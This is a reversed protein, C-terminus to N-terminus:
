GEREAEELQLAPQLPTRDTGLLLQHQQVSLVAGWGSSGHVPEVHSAPDGSVEVQGARTSDEGLSAEGLQYRGRGDRRQATTSSWTVTKKQTQLQLQILSHELLRRVAM